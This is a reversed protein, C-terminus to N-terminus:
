LIVDILHFTNFLDLWIAAYTSLFVTHSFLYITSKIVNEAIASNSRADLGNSSSDGKVILTIACVSVSAPSSAAAVIAEPALSLVAAAFAFAFAVAFAVPL